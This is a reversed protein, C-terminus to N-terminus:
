SRTKLLTPINRDLDLCQQLLAAAVLYCKGLVIRKCRHLVKRKIEPIIKKLECFQLEGGGVLTRASGM